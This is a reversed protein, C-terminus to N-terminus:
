IEGEGGLSSRRLQGCAGAIDSGMERRVSCSIGLQRLRKEFETIQLDTAKDFKREKVKNLPILNVHCQMGRLRGALETANDRSDNVGKILTYEFIVRRGTTKVYMRAAEILKEIPWVKAVPMTQRRIDDNPAHLSISLTIGLHLQALSYIKDVLGCTSLSINRMSINLGEPANLLHLFKVVNDFNDLPEGSGMLVINSVKELGDQEADKNVCLVEALMEGPRLNRVRGELTSACFACGMACGVQTSICVTNGYRYQMLVGEVINGDELSFLYKRTGDKGVLKKLISAGGMKIAGLKHVLASPINSMECPAKGQSFGKFLQAARCSPQGLEAMLMKLEDTNMDLLAEM